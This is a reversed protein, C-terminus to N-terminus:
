VGRPVSAHTLIQVKTYYLLYIQLRLALLEAGYRPVSAVRTLIQVNTGPCCTFLYQRTILTKNYKYKQVLLALLCLVRCLAEKGRACRCNKDGRKTSKYWYLLYASYRSVSADGAHQEAGAYTLM